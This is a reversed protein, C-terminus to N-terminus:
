CRRTPTQMLRQFSFLSHQQQVCVLYCFRLSAMTWGCCLALARKGDKTPCTKSFGKIKAWIEQANWQIPNWVYCHHRWSRGGKTWERFIGSAHTFSRAIPHNMITTLNCSCPITIIIITIITVMSFPSLFLPNVMIKGNLQPSSPPSTSSSDGLGFTSRLRNPNGSKRLAAKSEALQTNGFLDM